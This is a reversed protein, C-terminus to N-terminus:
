RGKNYSKLDSVFRFVWGRKQSKQFSNSLLCYESTDLFKIKFFWKYDIRGCRINEDFM